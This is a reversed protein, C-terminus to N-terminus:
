PSDKAPKGKSKGAGKGKGKGKGPEGGKEAVPATIVLAYSLKKNGTFNPIIEGVFANRLCARGDENAGGFHSGLDVEAIQGSPGDFVVEITGEGIPTGVAVKPCEQAKRTGRKLVIQAAEDDFPTRDDDVSTPTAADGSASTAVSSEVRLVDEPVAPEPKPGGCAAM